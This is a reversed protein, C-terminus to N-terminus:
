EKGLYSFESQDGFYYVGMFSAITMPIQINEVTQGDFLEAGWGYAFVPVDASTHDESSYTLVGNEDPALGGTEHDATILVFTDPNYFAYEMFNGIAQNFRILAEFTAELNNDHCHKDIYAEEYMIFFGDEDEVKSITENIYNTIVRMDKVNYGCKIELGNTMLELQSERIASSDKRDPVHSSFSAPTAGTNTETSMVGAKMGRLIALETILQVENKDKDLGLYGNITKTGASLATGGAASDTTGSLSDTRSYGQYPLMYGYFIDEGDSFDYNNEMYDFMKTQYYGMGDGILVIYNKAEKVIPDLVRVENPVNAKYDDSPVYTEIFYYAAAAIVFYDAELAIDGGDALIAFQLDGCEADLSESIARTTNGVVIENAREAEGDTILPLDLGTRVSIEAKIYEAARKAYDLDSASYVIAYQDLNVDNIFSYSPANASNNTQNGGDSKPSCGVISLVMTLVIFVTLLKKM